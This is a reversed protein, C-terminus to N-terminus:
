SLVEGYYPQKRPTVTDPLCNREGHKCPSLQRIPISVYKTPDGNEGKVVTGCYLRWIDGRSALFWVLPEFATEGEPVYSRLDDQLQLLARIPFFSQTLIEEFGRSSSESKAELVLFPFLLPNEQTKFPTTKLLDAVTDDPRKQIDPRAPSELLSDFSPTNQLGFVRDPAQKPLHSKIIDDYTFFKDVRDAFLPNTGLTYSDFDAFSRLM